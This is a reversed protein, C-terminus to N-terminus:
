RDLCGNRNIRTKRRKWRLADSIGRGCNELFSAPRKRWTWADAASSVAANAGSIEGHVRVIEDTTKRIRRRSPRDSANRLRTGIDRRWNKVAFFAVDEMNLIQERIAGTM